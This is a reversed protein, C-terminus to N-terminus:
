VIQILTQGILSSFLQSNTDMIRQTYDSDNGDTTWLVFHEMELGM